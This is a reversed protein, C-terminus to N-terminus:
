RANINNGSMIEHAVNMPDGSKDEGEPTPRPGLDYNKWKFYM